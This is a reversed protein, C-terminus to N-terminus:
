EKTFLTRLRDLSTAIDQDAASAVMGEVAGM